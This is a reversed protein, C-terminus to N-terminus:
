LRSFSYLLFFSLFGAFTLSSTVMVNARTISLNGMGVGGFGACQKVEGYEIEACSMHEDSCNM